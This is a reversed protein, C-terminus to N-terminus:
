VVSKRDIYWRSKTPDGSVVTYTYKGHTNKGYTAYNVQAKLGFTLLLLLALSINKM